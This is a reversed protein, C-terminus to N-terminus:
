GPSVGCNGPRNLSSTERLSDYVFGTGIKVTSPLLEAILDSLIKEYHTGVSPAHSTFGEVWELEARLRKDFRVSVPFQNVHPYFHLVGDSEFLVHQGTPAAQNKLVVTSLPRELNQDM